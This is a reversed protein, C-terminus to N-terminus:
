TEGLTQHKRLFLPMMWNISCVESNALRRYSIKEVNFIGKFHPKFTHEVYFFNTQALFATILECIPPLFDGVFFDLPVWRPM